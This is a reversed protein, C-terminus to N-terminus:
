KSPMGIRQSQPDLPSTTHRALPHTTREPIDVVHQAPIDVVAPKDGHPPLPPPTRQPCMKHIDGMNTMCMNEASCIGRRSVSMIPMGSKKDTTGMKTCCNGPTSCQWGEQTIGLASAASALVILLAIMRKMINEKNIHTNM